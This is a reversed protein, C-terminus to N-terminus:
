AKLAKVAAQASLRGWIVAATLQSGVIYDDYFLGGISNGCAFLGPIPQNETNLVEGNLGIKPGGFTATMGGQFAFAYFPGKEILRPKELTNPPTLTDAKGAKVAANYEDITRVLTKEDVGMSKALEAITMGEAIPAKAKKYRAIRTAVTEIDVVQSDIIIFASNDKTITPLEKAIAVYTKEEDIIRHAAKNVIVGYNVMTSPNAQNVGIPGGHFQDMNVYNPFFPRTLTINEGMMYASGRLPMWAVGGGMYQCVMEKNAHFGGTAVIVGCKSRLELAGQTKSVARAGVCELLPTKLLEIAKTNTMFTINKHKKVEELMQFTLQAGGPKKPGAVVHGRVTAPWVEKVMKGWKIGCRKTLWEICDASKECYIRTLKPDGRHQSVEMMDKYFEDITDTFGNEKQVFTNTANFHGGAYITNGFPASMKELLAVKAGADAAELAATMGACGAGIVVLDFDLTKVGTEAAPAAAHAMGVTGAATAAVAGFLGTRLASRRNMDTM